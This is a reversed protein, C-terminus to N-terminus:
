DMSNAGYRQEQLEKARQLADPRIRKWYDTKTIAQPKVDFVAAWWPSKKLYLEPFLESAEVMRDNTNKSSDSLVKALKMTLAGDPSLEVILQLLDAQLPSDDVAETQTSAVPQRVESRESSEQQQLTNRYSEEVFRRVGGQRLPDLVHSMGCDVDDEVIRRLVHIFRRRLFDPRSEILRVATESWELAPSLRDRLERSYIVVEAWLKTSALEPNLGSLYEKARTWIGYFQGLLGVLKGAEREWPYPLECEGTADSLVPWDEYEKLIERQQSVCDQFEECWWFLNHLPEHFPAGM